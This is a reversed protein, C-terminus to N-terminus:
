NQSLLAIEEASTQSTYPVILESQVVYTGKDYTPVTAESKMSFFTKLFQSFIEEQHLEASTLSDALILKSDDASFIYFWLKLLPSIFITGSPPLHM